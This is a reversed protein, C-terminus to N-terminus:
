SAQPRNERRFPHPTHLRPFRHGEKEGAQAKNKRGAPAAEGRHGPTVHNKDELYHRVKDEKVANVFIGNVLKVIPAEVEAVAETDDREEIAEIGDLASGVVTDFDDVDVMPGEDGFGMDPGGAALEEDTLTYDKAELLASTDAETMSPAEEHQQQAAAITGKGNYYANIANEIGTESSVAVEVNYGTMFKVDDIAFVNSPDTMAITLTAGVRAVPMITYKKAMEVPILKVVSLDIKYDSLQIAPVGFQKSLFAVLKDETVYGLKVLNTGLRGGEKKQLNLAYKLQEESIINSSILLEGLKPAM